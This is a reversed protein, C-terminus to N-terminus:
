KYRCSFNSKKWVALNLDGVQMYIHKKGFPQLTKDLSLRRITQNNSTLIKIETINITKNNFNLLEFQIQSNSLRMANMKVEDMCSALANGSLLLGLVIIGLLKKM